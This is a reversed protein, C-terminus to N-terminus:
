EKLYSSFEQELVELTKPVPQGKIRYYATKIITRNQDILAFNVSISGIDIGLCFMKETSEQKNPM